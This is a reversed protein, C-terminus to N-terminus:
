SIGFAIVQKKGDKKQRTILECLFRALPFMSSRLYSLYAREEFLGLLFLSFYFFLYVEFALKLSDQKVRQASFAGAGNKVCLCADTDKGTEDACIFDVAQVFDRGQVEGQVPNLDTKVLVTLLLFIMYLFFVIQVVPMKKRKRM